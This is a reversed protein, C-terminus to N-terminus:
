CEALAHVSLAVFGGVFGAILTTASTQLTGQPLHLASDIHVNRSGHIRNFKPLKDNETEYNNILQAEVQAPDQGKPLIKYQVFVNEPSDKIAEYLMPSGHNNVHKRVRARLGSSAKGIYLIEASGDAQLLLWQYVGSKAPISKLDLGAVCVPTSWKGM